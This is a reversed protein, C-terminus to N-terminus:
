TSVVVLSSNRNAFTFEAICADISDVISGFVKKDTGFADVAKQVQERTDANLLLVSDLYLIAANGPIRDGAGDFMFQYKLAPIPPATPTLEFTKKDAQNASKAQEAAFANTGLLVLVIVTNLM